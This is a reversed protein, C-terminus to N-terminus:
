PGFPREPIPEPLTGLVFTTYYLFVILGAISLIVLFVLLAREDSRVIGRGDVPFRTPRRRM